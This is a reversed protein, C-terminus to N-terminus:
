WDELLILNISSSYDGEHNTSRKKVTLTLTETSTTLSVPLEVNKNTTSTTLKKGDAEIILELSDTRSSSVSPLHCSNSTGGNGCAMSLYLKVQSSYSLDVKKQVESANRPFNFVVQNAISAATKPQNVITFKFRYKSWGGGSSANAITGHSLGGMYAQTNDYNIGASTTLPYGSGVKVTVNMRLAQFDDLVNCKASFQSGPFLRVVDRSQWQVDYWRYDVCSVRILVDVYNINISVGDPLNLTHPHKLYFVQYGNSDANSYLKTKNNLTVTTTYSKYDGMKKTITGLTMDATSVYGYSYFSLLFMLFYLYRLRMVMVMVMVMVM